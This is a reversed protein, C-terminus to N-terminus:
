SRPVWLRQGAFVTTGSLANLEIIQQSVLRTDANPDASEAVSWLSQGPRVVVQALARGAPRPSASHSIAQAAGAAILSLVAVLLVVAAAVVVRGRRTLRLPPSAQQGAAIPRASRQRAPVPRPAPVPRAPVPRAPTPTRRAPTLPPATPPATEPLPAAPPATVSADARYVVRLEPRRRANNEARFRPLTDARVAHM